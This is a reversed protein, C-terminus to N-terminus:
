GISPNNLDGAAQRELQRVKLQRMTAMFPRSKGAM